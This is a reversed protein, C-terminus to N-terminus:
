SCDYSKRLERKVREFTSDNGFGKCGTTLAHKKSKPYNRCHAPKTDHIRCKYKDQKPLKRLWPCRTAEDGTNPSIWIDGLATEGAIEFIVVWKLIDWREEMRWRNIDTIDVTTSYADHLNHCCNGCQICHFKEMETEIWIGDEGGGDKGPSVKLWKTWEYVQAIDDTKHVVKPILEIALEKFDFVSIFKEEKSGRAKYWIGREERNPERFAKSGPWADGKTLFSYVKAFLAIDYWKEPAAALDLFVENIADESSLFIVIKDTM